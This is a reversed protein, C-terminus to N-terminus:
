RQNNISSKIDGEGIEDVEQDDEIEGDEIDDQDDKGNSIGYVNVSCNNRRCFGGIDKLSM